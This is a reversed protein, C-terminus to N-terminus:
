ASDFRAEGADLRLQGLRAHRCWTRPRSRRLGRRRLGLGAIAWRQHGAKQPPTACDCQHERGCIEVVVAPEQVGGCVRHDRGGVGAVLGADDAAAVHRQRGRGQVVAGRARDRGAARQAGGRLAQVVVGAKHPGRLIQMEVRLALRDNRGFATAVDDREQVLGLGNHRGFQM